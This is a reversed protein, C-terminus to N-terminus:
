PATYRQGEEPTVPAESGRVRFQIPYAQRTRADKAKYVIMHLHPGGAYGTHGALGLISGAEVKDGEKVRIQRHQFHCYEAFTGDDHRVRVTNVRNKYYPKAAGEIWRDVVTVVTGSRSCRIEGGEPINFDLGFEDSGFHSFTGHFGQIVKYTRGPAYPLDYVTQPDHQADSRGFCWNWRYNSRWSKNPDDQEVRVVQRSEHSGLIFKVPLPVSTRVNSGEVNVEVTLDAAQLNEALIEFGHPLSRKTISLVNAMNDDEEPQASAQLHLLGVAAFSTLSTLALAKLPRSIRGWGIQRQHSPIRNFASSIM